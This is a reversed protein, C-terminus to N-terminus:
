PWGLLHRVGHWTELVLDRDHGAGTGPDAARDRQAERALAGRHREDVAVGARGALRRRRDGGGPALRQDDLAVDRLRRGPLLRQLPREGRAAPEVDDDVAGARRLSAPDDLVRQLAPVADERDVESADEEARAGADRRHRAAAAAGEHVDGRRVPEDAVRRHRAVDRGLGPHEAERARDRDVVAALPDAGVHDAGPDHEALDADRELRGVLLLPAPDEVREQVPVPALGVVDGVGGDVEGGVLRSEHGAGLQRDVAAKM